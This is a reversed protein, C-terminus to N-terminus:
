GLAFTATETIAPAAMDIAPIVANAINGDGNEGVTGDEEVSCGPIAVATIGLVFAAVIALILARRLNDM